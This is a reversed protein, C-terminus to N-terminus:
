VICGIEDSVKVVGSHSKYNNLNEKTWLVTGQLPNRIGELSSM